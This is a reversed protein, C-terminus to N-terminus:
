KLLFMSSNTCSIKLNRHGSSFLNSWMVEKIIFQWEYEGVDGYSKLGFTDRSFLFM